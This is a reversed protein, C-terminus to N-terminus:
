VGPCTTRRRRSLEELRKEAARLIAAVIAEFGRLDPDQLRLVWPDDGLVPLQAGAPRLNTDPFLREPQLKECGLGVVLPSGGLNPNRSLNRITRIPVAAGPADIAVGCGYTHTIAVVDDVGPYRPLIESKIRRVAYEVTPAVCQVTTTIGLTNKTGASGDPNRYGEFTYDDLPPLSPPVNTALPLDALAPPEPLDLVDERVWSGARVPRNAYGIVHGYRVVPAGAELDRLAVKHAQPVAEVLTLGDPFLTGVPLGEPNVVIAVNDDPHVRVTFPLV